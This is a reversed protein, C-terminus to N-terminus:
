GYCYGRGDIGLKSRIHTSRLRCKMSWEDNEKCSDKFFEGLLATMECMEHNEESAAMNVTVKTNVTTQMESLANSTVPM